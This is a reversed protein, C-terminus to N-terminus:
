TKKTPIRYSRDVIKLIFLNGKDGRSVRLDEDLYTIELSGRATEPAKVPILGWIKFYDFKVAVKRSNLPILDATVQNFFPWTEMNQARLTDLNIAQYNVRSRLFKPTQGIRQQDEPTADAGRDLPEIAQLLEEKIAKADKKRTLFAPFFSVRTKTSIRTNKGSISFEYPIQHIPKSLFHLTSPSSPLPLSISENATVPLSKSLSLSPLAMARIIPGTSSYLVLAQTNQPVSLFVPGAFISALQQPQRVLRELYLVPRM